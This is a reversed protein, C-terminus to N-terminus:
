YYYRLLRPIRYKMRLNRLVKESSESENSFKELLVKELEKELNELFAMKQYENKRSKLTRLAKEFISKTFEIESPINKLFNKIEEIMLSEKDLKYNRGGVISERYSLIAREIDKKFSSISPNRKKKREWGIKLGDIIANVPVGKELWNVLIAIDKPSPLFPKGTIRRFEREIIKLKKKM